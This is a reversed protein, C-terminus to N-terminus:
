FSNHLAVSGNLWSRQYLTMMECGCTEIYSANRPDYVLLLSVHVQVM